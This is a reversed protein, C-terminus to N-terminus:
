LRESAAQCLPSLPSSPHHAVYGLGARALGGMCGGVLEDAESYLVHTYGQWLLHLRFDRAQSVLFKAVAVNNSQDPLLPGKPSRVTRVNGEPLGYLQFLERYTSVFEPHCDVQLPSLDCM